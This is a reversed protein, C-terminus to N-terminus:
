GRGELRENLDFYDNLAKDLRTKAVFADEGAETAAVEGDSVHRDRRALEVVHRRLTRIAAALSRLRWTDGASACYALGGDMRVMIM